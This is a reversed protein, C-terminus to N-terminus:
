IKLRFFLDGPGVGVHDGLNDLYVELAEGAGLMLASWWAKQLPFAYDALRAGKVVDWQLAYSVMLRRYVRSANGELMYPIIEAPYVELASWSELDTLWTSMNVM